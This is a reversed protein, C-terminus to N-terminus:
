FRNERSLESNFLATFVPTLRTAAEVTMFNSMSGNDLLFKLPWHNGSSDSVYLIATSLLVVKKTNVQGLLSNSPPCDSVSLTLALPDVQNARELVSPTSGEDRGQHSRSAVAPRALGLTRPSGTESRHLLSNHSKLKCHVCFLDRKCNAATHGNGLCLRCLNKRKVIGMRSSVDMDRFTPCRGTHTTPLRRQSDMRQRLLQLFQSHQLKTREPRLFEGPLRLPADFVLEASSTKIDEKLAARIGLLVTPLVESWRTTAHSM